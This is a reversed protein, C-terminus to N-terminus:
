QQDRGQENQQSKGTFKRSCGKKAGHKTCNENSGALGSDPYMARKREDCLSHDAYKNGAGDRDFEEEAHPAM